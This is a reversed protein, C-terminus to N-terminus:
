SCSITRHAVAAAADRYAYFAPKASWDARLLGSQWGGLLVEDRLEFNFFAGVYPQCYALEIAAQEQQAQVDESVAHRDTETGTYLRRADTVQSQFGDEMYWITVGRRGPVPQGTGGFAANLVSILRDYDGEDINKAHTASPAEASNDPYANHGVTDFIPASRASGRYAAGMATYWAAPNQHPASAAIVNVGPRAAHLSDWCTALLQEYAAAAGTQPRWFFPSNPETWIVLDNIRPYRQVISTVYSCYQARGAADVPPHDRPGDVAVVLRLTWTALNARDLETRDTTDLATQGPQWQLTVRVAQLGLQRYVQTLAGAPGMWRPTDDDVGLILNPGADARQALACVVALSVLCVALVVRLKM